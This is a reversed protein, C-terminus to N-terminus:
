TNNTMQLRISIVWIEKLKLPLKLGMLKGKNWPVHHSNQNDTNQKM